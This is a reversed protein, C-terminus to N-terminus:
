VFVWLSSYYFIATFIWLAVSMFLFGMQGRSYCGGIFVSLQLASHTAEESNIKSVNEIRPTIVAPKATINIPLTTPQAVPKAACLVLASEAFRDSRTWNRYAIQANGAWFAFRKHYSCNMTSLKHNVVIILIACPILLRIYRQMKSTILSLFHLSLM